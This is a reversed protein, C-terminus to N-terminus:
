YESGCIPRLVIKLWFCVLIFFFFLGKEGTNNMPKVAHSILINSYAIFDSSVCVVLSKFILFINSAAPYNQYPHLYPFPSFLSINWSLLNKIIQAPRVSWPLCPWNTMHAHVHTPLPADPAAVPVVVCVYAYHMCYLKKQVQRGLM